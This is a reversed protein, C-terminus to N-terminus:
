NVAFSMVFDTGELMKIVINFEVQSENSKTIDTLVVKYTYIDSMKNSYEKYTVKNYKFCKTKIYKEFDSQTKFYNQKFNEYLKYYATKYDQMNIMKFFKDINLIEKNKYTSNQYEKNFEENDITYNDLQVTYEMMATEKLVYVNGYQDKLNYINCNDNKILKYDVLYMDTIYEKNNEIYEKFNDIKDFRKEKYEEDLLNYAEEHSNLLKEKYMNFYIVSMQADSVSMYSVANYKEYTIGNQHNTTNEIINDKELKNNNDSLLEILIGLISIIVISIIIMLLEIRKM